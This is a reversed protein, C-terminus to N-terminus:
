EGIGYRKNIGKDELIINIANMQIFNCENLLTSVLDGTFAPVLWIGSNVKRKGYANILADLDEQTNLASFTEIVKQNNTGIGDFADFLDDALTKADITVRGSGGSTGGSNPNQPNNPNPPNPINPNPLAKPKKLLKYGVLGLIAIIGVTIIGNKTKKNM